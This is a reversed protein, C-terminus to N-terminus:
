AHLEAEPDGTTPTERRLKELIERLPKWYARDAERELEEELKLDAREKTPPFRQSLEGLLEPTRLERHWFEIQEPTPEDPEVLLDVDRSFEAAGYLVCAQGGM